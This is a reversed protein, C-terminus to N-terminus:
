TLKEPVDYQEVRELIDVYEEEVRAQEEDDPFDYTYVKEFVVPPEIVFVIRTQAPLFRQILGKVLEQGRVILEADLTDPTLYVGVTDRACWADNNIVVQNTDHVRTDYTYHM